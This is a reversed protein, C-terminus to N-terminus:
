NGKKKATGSKGTVSKGPKVKPTSKTSGQTQAPPQTQTPNEEASTDMQGLVTDLDDNSPVANAYPQLTPGTGPGGWAVVRPTVGDAGTVLVDFDTAADDCEECAPHDTLQLTVAVVITKPAADDATGPTVVAAEGVTTKQLTLGSFPIYAHDPNADNVVARLAQPSGSAMAQAWQEIAAEVQDSPTTSTPLSPWRAADAAAEAMPPEEPTLAPDGVVAIAGSKTTAVLVEATYLSSSGADDGSKAPAAVLFRVATLSAADDTASPNNPDVKPKPLDESGQWGLVQAQRLPAAGSAIWNQVSVMAQARVRDFAATQVKAAQQTPTKTASVFLGLLLFPAVVACVILYWKTWRARRALRKGDPLDARPIEEVDDLWGSDHHEERKRGFFPMRFGSRDQDRGTAEDDYPTSHGEDAGTDRTSIVM